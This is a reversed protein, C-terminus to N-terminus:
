HVEHARSREPKSDGAGQVGRKEFDSACTVFKKAQECLYVYDKFEDDSLFRKERVGYHELAGEASYVHWVNNEAQFRDEEEIKKTCDLNRWAPVHDLWLDKTFFASNLEQWLRSTESSAFPLSRNALEQECLQSGHELASIRRQNKFKPYALFALGIAACVVFYALPLAYANPLVLQDWSTRPAGKGGALPALKWYLEKLSALKALEVRSGNVRATGQWPNIHSLTFLKGDSSTLHVSAVAVEAKIKTSRYGKAATWFFDLDQKSPYLKRVLQELHDPEFAEKGSFEKMADRLENGHLTAANILTIEGRAAPAPEAGWALPSFVQMFCLVPVCVAKVWSIRM